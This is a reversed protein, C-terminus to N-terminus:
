LLGANAIRELISSAIKARKKARLVRLTEEQNLDMSKIVKALDKSFKQLLDKLAESTTGLSKQIEKQDKGDLMNDLLAEYQPNILSLQKYLYKKDIKDELSTDESAIEEESRVGVSENDGKDDRSVNGFSEAKDFKEIKKISKWFDNSENKVSNTWYKIFEPRNAEGDKKNEMYKSFIEPIPKTNYLNELFKKDHYKIIRLPKKEGKWVNDILREGIDFQDMLKKFNKNAKIEDLSLKSKKLNLVLNPMMFDRVYKYNLSDVPKKPKPVILKGIVMSVLEDFTFGGKNEGKLITNGVATKRLANFALRYLDDGDELPIGAEVAENWLHESLKNTIADSLKLRM